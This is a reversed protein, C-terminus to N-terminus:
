DFGTAYCNNEECAARLEDKNRIYLPEAAIHEFWGLQFPIVGAPRGIIQRATEGCNSCKCTKRDDISKADEFQFGCGCEYTYMPM